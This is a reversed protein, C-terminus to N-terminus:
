GEKLLPFVMTFTTGANVDSKLQLQVNNLDAYRKTLAMGLGIGQYNKTFGESEQTYPEYIKQQYESSIGIGTDIVSLRKHGKWEDIGITINGKLTFKTANDVLNVIAQHICYEDAFVDAKELTTDFLLTLGKEEAVSRSEQLVMKSIKVLDIRKPFVKITGAELQSISLISDVTHMLRKSASNIYDFISEDNERLYERYRQNLLDSFGLISNLPTRIEHSINAIFQDKVQNATRADNLAHELSVTSAQLSQEMKKRETIDRGVAQIEKLIGSSDFIGRDIWLHWVKEGSPLTSVHEDTIIPNDVSLAEIKQAIRRVETDLNKRTINRGIAEEPTTHFARCYSDNVFTISGDPLYRMIYETQDQVVNRYHEESMRLAEEARRSETIDMGISLVGRPEGSKSHLVTNNWSILREEGSKTYIPNDHHSSESMEKLVDSFLRPLDAKDKKPIFLDFWNKGMVESKNYGTLEEAFKNFTTITAEADFAVVMTNATEMLNEAFEKARVLAEHTEKRHTIDHYNVMFAVKNEYVIPTPSALVIREDGNSLLVRFEAPPLPLGERSLKTLRQRARDRDDPHIHSLPDGGRMQDKRTLSLARLAAENMDLITKGDHIVIPDPAADFLTRYKEESSRIDGEAKTQTSIDSVIGLVYTEGEYELSRGKVSAHLCTGGKQLIEIRQTGSKGELIKPFLNLERDPPLLDVITMSLLEAESYATLDCFARNVGVFQGNKNLLSFGENTQDLLVRYMPFDSHLLLNKQSRPTM